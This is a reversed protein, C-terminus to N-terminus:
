EDRKAAALAATSAAAALTAYVQATEAAADTGDSRIATGVRELNANALRIFDAYDALYNNVNGYSM